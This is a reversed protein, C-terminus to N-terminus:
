DSAQQAPHQPALPAADCDLAADDAEGDAAPQAGAGFGLELLLREVQGLEVDHGLESLQAQIAGLDLFGPLSDSLSM